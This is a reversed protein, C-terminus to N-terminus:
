QCEVLSMGLPLPKNSVWGILKKSRCSQCHHHRIVCSHKSAGLYDELCRDLVLVGWKLYVAPVLWQIELLIPNLLPPIGVWSSCILYIKFHSSTDTQWDHSNLCTRFLVLPTVSFHAEWEWGQLFSVKFLLSPGLLGNIHSTQPKAGFNCEVDKFCREQLNVLPCDVGAPM